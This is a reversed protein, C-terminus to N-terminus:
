VKFHTLNATNNSNDIMVSELIGGNDRINGDININTGPPGHARDDSM